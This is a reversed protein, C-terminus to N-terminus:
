KSINAQVGGFSKIIFYQKNFMLFYFLYKNFVHDSVICACCAQNTAAHIKLIGLKGISGYMAIIVTEPPFIKISTNEVALKTISEESEYIYSDNLDGIKLWPYGEGYYEAKSRSPTLGSKWMGVTSLRVWKWNDPIKFPIEDSNIEAETKMESQKKVSKKTSM